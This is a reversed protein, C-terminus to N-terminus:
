PPPTWRPKCPLRIGVLGVIPLLALSFTIVVNGGDARRLKLLAHKLKASVHKLNMQAGAVLIMQAFYAVTSYFGRQASASFVRAALRVTNVM